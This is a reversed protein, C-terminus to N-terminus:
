ANIFTVFVTLFFTFHTQTVSLHIKEGAPKGDFIQYKCIFCTLLEKQIKQTHNVTENPILLAKFFKLSKINDEDRKNVEKEKRRLSLSPFTQKFLAKLFGESCWGLVKTHEKSM